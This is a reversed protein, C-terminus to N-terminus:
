SGVKVRKRRHFVVILVLVVFFLIVFPYIEIHIFIEFMLILFQVVSNNALTQPRANKQSVPLFQYTVSTPLVVKDTLSNVPFFTSSYTEWAFVTAVGYVDLTSVDEAPSGMTYLTYMLDGTYNSHGLGLSHGLEHLAVNQLDGENLTDGHLTHAALNVTCNAIIKQYNTSIQSLGVVDTTNSFPSEHWSVYIDYGPQTSNSVTPQIRLSSLYSYNSYNSAFTAIAENWQGIARLSTNLFVPNWWSENDATVVLANLTSRSWVFGQLKLSYNDQSQGQVFSTSVFCGIIILSAIWLFLSIRRMASRYNFTRNREKLKRTTNLM